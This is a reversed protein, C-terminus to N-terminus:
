PRGKQYGWLNTRAWGMESQDASLGQVDWWADHRGVNSDIVLYNHEGDPQM